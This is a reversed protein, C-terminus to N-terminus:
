RRPGGYPYSRKVCVTRVIRGQRDIAPFVLSVVRWLSSHGHKFIIDGPKMHEFPIRTTQSGSKKYFVDKRM